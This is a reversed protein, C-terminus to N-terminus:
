VRLASQRESARERSPGTASIHDSAIEGHRSSQGCFPAWFDAVGLPSLTRFKHNQCLAFCTSASPYRDRPLKSWQSGTMLDLFEMLRGVIMRGPGVVVRTRGVDRRIRNLRAWQEDTFGRWM